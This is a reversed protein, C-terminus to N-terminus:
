TRPNGNARLSATIKATRVLSRALMRRPTTASSREGCKRDTRALTGAVNYQVESRCYRIHNEACLRGSRRLSPSAAKSTTANEIAGTITAGIATVGIAVTTATITAIIATAITATPAIAATAITMTTTAAIAVIATATTTTTAAVATAT